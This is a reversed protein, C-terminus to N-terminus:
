DRFIKSDKAKVDKTSFSKLEELSSNVADMKEQTQEHLDEILLKVGDLERQIESTETELLRRHNADSDSSSNMSSYYTYVSIAIAVVAIWFSIRSNSLSFKNNIREEMTRINSVLNEVNFARRRKEKADEDDFNIDQIKIRKNYCSFYLSNYYAKDGKLRSTLRYFAHHQSNPSFFMKMKVGFRGIVLENYLLQIFKQTQYFKQEYEQLYHVLAENDSDSINVDNTTIYPKLMSDGENAQHHEHQHYFEKIKHYIDCPFQYKNNEKDWILFHEDGSCRIKYKFLGNHSHKVYELTLADEIEDNGDEDKFLSILINRNECILTVKAYLREDGNRLFCKSLEDSIEFIGSEDCLPKEFDHHIITPM